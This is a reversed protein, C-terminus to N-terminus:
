WSVPGNTCHTILWLNTRHKCPCCCCNFGVGNFCSIPRQFRPSSRFYNDVHLRHQVMRLMKLQRKVVREKKQDIYFLVLNLLLNFNSQIHKISDTSKKWPFSLGFFYFDSFYWIKYSGSRNSLTRLELFKEIYFKVTDVVQIVNTFM